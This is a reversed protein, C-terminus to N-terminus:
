SGTKRGSPSSMLEASSVASWFFACLWRARANPNSTAASRARYPYLEARGRGTARSARASREAAVHTARLARGSREAAVRTARPLPHTPKGM